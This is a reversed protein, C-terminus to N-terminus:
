FSLPLCILVRTGMSRRREEWIPCSGVCRVVFM